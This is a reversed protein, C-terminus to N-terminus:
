LSEIQFFNSKGLQLGMWAGTLHATNAIGLSFNEHVMVSLLFLLGEMAAVGLIFCFIMYVTMRQLPYNEGYSKKRAWIFGTLGAVVGSIGLFAPGTMIYQATNSVIAIALLLWWFRATGIRQEIQKGLAFFWVLNLFLHFLDAHLLVPSFLRWIQGERLKEFLPPMPDPLDKHLALVYLGQWYPTSDINQLVEEAGPPPPYSFTRPGYKETLEKLQSFVKPYDYLLAEEAPSSFIPPLGTQMSMQISLFLLCCLLSLSATLKM